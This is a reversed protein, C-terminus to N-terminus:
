RVKGAALYERELTHKPPSTPTQTCTLVLKGKNLIFYFSKQTKKATDLGGGWM